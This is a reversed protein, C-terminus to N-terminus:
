IELRKNLSTLWNFIVLTSLYTDKDIIGIDKIFICESDKLPNFFTSNYEVKLYRKTGNIDIIKVHTSNKWNLNPIM